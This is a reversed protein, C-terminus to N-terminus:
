IVPATARIPADTRPIFQSNLSQFLNRSPIPFNVMIAPVNIPMARTFEAM